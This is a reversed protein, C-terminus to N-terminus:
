GVIERISFSNTAGSVDVTGSLFVVRDGSKIHRKALLQLTAYSYLQAVNRGKIALEPIIGWQLFLKQYTRPNPTFVVARIPLRERAVLRATEGSLSFVVMATAGSEM